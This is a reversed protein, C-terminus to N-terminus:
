GENRVGTGHPPGFIEDAMSAIAERTLYMPQFQADGTGVLPGFPVFGARHYLKAQRTTGSIVALDYGQQHSYQWLLATLGFLVPGNRFDKEVSLLRIECISRKPPLYADLDPLKLDLSFPRRGRLAMMGALIDGRLAILYTNEDHFQDVLRHKSSPAHQPIEEVFTRYNLRHILEFEREETAIKFQFEPHANMMM